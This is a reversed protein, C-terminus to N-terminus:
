YAGWDVIDKNKKLTTKKGFTMDNFAGSNYLGGLISTGAGMYAGTARNRGAQSYLNGQMVDMGAQSRHEQAGIQGEYGIMLNELDLESQQKAAVLLPSGVTGVAGSAGINATLTSMRRQAAQAQRKQDYATKAEIQRAKQEEVRANYEMMAKQSQGQQKAAQAQSVGGYISGAIGTGALLGTGTIAGSSGILGASGTAASGVLLTSAAGAIAQAAGIFLPIFFPM